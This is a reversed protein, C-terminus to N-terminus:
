RFRKAVKVTVIVAGAVALIKSMCGLVVCFGYLLFILLM